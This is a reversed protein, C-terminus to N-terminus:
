RSRTRSSRAGAAPEAVHDDRVQGLRLRDVHLRRLRQVLPGNPSRRRPRSRRGPRSRTRRSLSPTPCPSRRHRHGARRPRPRTGHQQNVANIEDQSTGAPNASNIKIGYKTSFANIIAGYNAWTPPLAIVNLTGEAKAAAVLKNMGGGAAVSTVTAWNTGGSSTNSSSSSCAAALLALAAVGALALRPTSRM